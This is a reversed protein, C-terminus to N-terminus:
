PQLAVEDRWHLHPWHQELRRLDDEIAAYFRPRLDTPVTSQRHGGRQGGLSLAAMRRLRPPVLPRLIQRYSKADRIRSGVGGTVVRTEAANEQRVGTTDFGALPVELFLSIQKIWSNPDRAYDELRLTLLNANGFVAAWNDLQAFYSSFQVFPRTPDPLIDALDGEPNRGLQAWHRWHSLARSYPERLVAILRLESGLADYAIRPDCPVVPTQMYATSVEGAALSRSSRITSAARAATEVSLFSSTEKEATLGIDPHDDLLSTLTTTGSKMAGIVLFSRADVTGNM